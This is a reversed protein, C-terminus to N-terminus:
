ILEPAPVEADSDNAEPAQIDPINPQIQMEQPAAELPQNQPASDQVTAKASSSKPAVKKLQKEYQAKLATLKKQYDKRIAELEKARNDTVCTKYSEAAIEKAKVKCSNEIHTQAQSLSAFAVLSLVVWKKM